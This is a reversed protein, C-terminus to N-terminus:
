DAIEVVWINRYQVKNRHDQLMLSDKAILGSAAAATTKGPLPQDKHTLIGNHRVTMMPRRILKGDPGTKAATFEVDYTQWKLPPLCANIKTNAVKYISGCDNSRSKLGFSELVQVEYRRQFYVGSNGRGQGRKTPEYPCRFEVHFRASGFKRKTFNTGRGVEMAGSDLPRWSANSWEAMSPKAGPKFPLLVIAGAPPKAGLTPSKRENYRDGDFTDGNDARASVMKSAVLLGTWGGGALKVRGDAGVKGTMEVRFQKINPDTKWLERMLAARYMGKGEAIVQAVGPGKVGGLALTGTYEGMLKDDVPAPAATKIPAKLPGSPTMDAEIDGLAFQIGDLYFQLLNANQFVKPNHGLSCYFIRGKGLKKVWAVANDKDPRKGKDKCITMDLRLLIRLKKRDYIRAFQYIEDHVMFGKGAFVKTLAHKPDDIAIGVNESWPHGCFFGGFIAGAKNDTAAHIGVLGGGGSVYAELNEEWTKGNASKGGGGTSNNLCVADFDKLKEPVLMESVAKADRAFVLTYAGTQAGMIEMAKEGAFRGANHSRYSLVLMKRPKAPKATAQKPAAAKIKALDQPSPDGGRAAKCVGATMAQVAVVMVAMLVLRKM